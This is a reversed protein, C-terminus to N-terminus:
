SVGEAGPTFLVCPSGPVPLTEHTEDFRRVEMRHIGKAVDRTLVAREKLSLTTPVASDTYGLM